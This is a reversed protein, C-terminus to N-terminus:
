KCKVRGEAYDKFNVDKKYCKEKVFNLITIFTDARVFGPIKDVYKGKHDLFVVTPLGQVGFLMSFDNPSLNYGNYKIKKGSDMDVRVPIFDKKLIKLVKKDEFTEKEMVKCWGCWTAYMDLMLHKKEKKAMKFGTNFDQWKIHSTKSLISKDPAFIIIASISLLITIRKRLKM